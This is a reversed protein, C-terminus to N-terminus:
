VDLVLERKEYKNVDLETIGLIEQMESTRPREQVDLM